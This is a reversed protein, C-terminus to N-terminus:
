PYSWGQQNFLDAVLQNLKKSLSTPAQIMKGDHTIEYRENDPM